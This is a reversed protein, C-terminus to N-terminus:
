DVRSWSHCAFDTGRVQRRRGRLAYSSWRLLPYPIGKSDHIGEASRKWGHLSGLTRIIRNDFGFWHDILNAVTQRFRPDTGRVTVLVSGNEFTWLLISGPVRVARFRDM